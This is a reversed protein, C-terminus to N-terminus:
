TSPQEVPKSETEASPEKGTKRRYKDEWYDAGKIGLKVPNFTYETVGQKQQEEYDNLAKLAPKSMFFIILIGVINLWAMLGVGVDGMAWALNATKVTGYFVVAILAVKLLFMLGNVKIHRRIYAVNTEAIYYYALITTFAFFFLAIAIFPKGIGPLASEIAMQTFVPGNAAIDAAVNQVLFGEAGHVNYAGTIIIMFATASCVLLTDIYISFSQVLGQQAPHDVSAAAAAHPGTGQGAENSYVGRKVGWGIAAGVGAMPTFADGIIMSFVRPVEGINLLIIIFATVIYALAMFPVVIQTFNAIRKVGGFIIFALIVSILTGTFIKAFSFTGIATEIMEGSGFAAEVANGISNSQVGPLLFGCAFITAIAFIWAYWTQGMAKEIYYAPGGRFQGEDEEKYIQALTSEAYATAAGFFAVVWMWFVAGPGGFGIAAAVGAINGTGVRGSLSVALAQFSSIGKTSSKGSLLLRWMESFHRVQVFRTMISYFLGAGLCLYILVPSWIIGNLFDVLSQM